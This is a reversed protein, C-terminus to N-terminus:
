ILIVFDDLKISKNHNKTLFILLNKLRKMTVKTKQLVKTKHIVEIIKRFVKKLNM